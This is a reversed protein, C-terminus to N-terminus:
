GNFFMEVVSVTAIAATEVKLVTSGLSVPLCGMQHALDYEEPTFDGEPGILISIAKVDQLDGLVSHLPKTNGCLSPMIVTSVKLLQELTTKFDGESHITPVSIRRSQKAANIAVKEFRQLKALKREGKLVVETRVTQLPYIQDVGLETTKEIITEFKGKKPVACALITSIKDKRMSQLNSLRIAVQSASLDVIQGDAQQAGNFIQVIDDPGLRLVNKIHHVEADDTIQILQQSHLDINSYFRHM